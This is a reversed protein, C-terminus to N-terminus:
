KCECSVRDEHEVKWDRGSKLAEIGFQLKEPCVGVKREFWEEEFVEWVFFGGDVAADITERLEGGVVVGNGACVLGLLECPSSKVELTGRVCGVTCLEM